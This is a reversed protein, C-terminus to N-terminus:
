GNFTVPEWNVVGDAEDVGGKTLIEFLEFRGSAYDIVRGSIDEVAGSTMEFDEGCV